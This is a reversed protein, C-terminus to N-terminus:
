GGGNRSLHLFEVTIAFGKETEPLIPNAGHRLAIARVLSLGLGHGPREAMTKGRTFPAFLTDRLEAPLGPGTDSVSLRVKAPTVTVALRIADGPDTYKIGNELLNSILQALLQADGLIWASQAIEVELKREAEEAVATYLDTLSRAVEALDVPQLEATNGAEADMEAISLLSDFLRITARIEEELGAQEAAALDLSSLRSQIRALPTRMEHAVANGLRRHADFLHAIRDLMANIHRALEAHDAPASPGSDFRAAMGRSGGVGDLFRNIRRVRARAARAVLAAAGLGAALMLLGFGSLVRLMGSLIDEVPALPLAVFLPFGGRLVRASALYDAGDLTVEQVQAAGAEAGPDVAEPWAPLNGALVAGKRDTLLFRSGGPDGELARFEMAQRVAPVRRQDYLAAYGQMEANLRAETEAMLRARLQDQVVAVGAVAFAIPVIAVLAASRFPGSRM